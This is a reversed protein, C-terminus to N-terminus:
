EPIFKVQNRGAAKAQYLAKDVDLFLEKPSCDRDPVVSTVGISVTVWASVRSGNHPINLKEITERLLLATRLADEKGLEPMILIFEEGGYRVALDSARKSFRKIARAVQVLCEDGASHGYYDNFAKFYDVDLIILSIPRKHRLGRNWEMQITNDYHRRNWLNTLPDKLSLLQLVENAKELEFKQYAIKERSKELAETRKIVLQDLNLNIEELQATMVEEQELANSFKQALVLSNAFVFILQGVASLNGTRFLTRLLPSVQDNMWISLFIIDNLSTIILALAGIIILGIGKEKQRLKNMLISIIYIIALVTFIQYVPNFITFTKAPTFLVLGGFVIGVGKVTGVIKSHFDNPFISKFFMFILTLGLYFTLTQIKHAVEWNFGPFIYIFFREGVLLTRLGILLCFLGFYLPPPSKRRFFFMALHYTGIIMLSGFLFLEYAISKYHLEFILKEHGMVLSELIGGSRHYFNAVQMVIENEGQTLEFLAVQPLYQPTMAERSKGVTGATAILEGNVWLNYATFVRPIKISLRGSEGTKLLLRYTAYGDGSLKKNDIIYQNWSSPIDFYGNGRSSTKKFEQPGLLQNWYFEWEGDLRIVEKELHWQTLDLIGEKAKPVSQIFEKSCGGLFPLILIIIALYFRFIRSNQM